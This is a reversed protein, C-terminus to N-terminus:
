PLSPESGKPRYLSIFGNGMGLRHSSAPHMSPLGALLPPCSDEPLLSLPSLWLILQPPPPTPLSGGWSFDRQSFTGRQEALDRERLQGRWARPLTDALTRGCVGPQCGQARSWSTKFLPGKGLLRLQQLISVRGRCRRGWNSM